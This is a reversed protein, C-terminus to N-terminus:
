SANREADFHRREEELLLSLEHALLGETSGTWSGGVAREERTSDEIGVNQMAALTAAAVGEAATGSNGVHKQGQRRSQRLTQRQKQPEGQVQKKNNNMIKRATKAKVKAKTKMNMKTKTKAKKKSSIIRSKSKTGRRKTTASTASSVSRRM